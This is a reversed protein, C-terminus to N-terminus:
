GADRGEFGIINGASDKIQVITWGDDNVKLPGRWVSAGLQRAKELVAGISAVEFYGISGGTSAPNKDDATVMELRTGALDFSVYNGDEEHAPVGFFDRYFKKSAALDNVCLRLTKLKPSIM